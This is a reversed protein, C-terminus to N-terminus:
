VPFISTIRCPQTIKVIIKVAALSLPWEENADCDDEISAAVASARPLDFKIFYIPSFINVDYKKATVEAM